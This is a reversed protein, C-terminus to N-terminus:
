VNVHTHREAIEAFAQALITDDLEAINHKYALEGIEQKRKQRLSVLKKKMTEIQEIIKREKKSINSKTKMTM